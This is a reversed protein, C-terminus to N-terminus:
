DLSAHATQGGISSKLAGRLKVARREVEDLIRVLEDAEKCPTQTSSYAEQEQVGARGANQLLLRIAENVDAETSGGAVGMRRLRRLEASTPKYAVYTYINSAVLALIVLGLLVIKSGEDGLNLLDSISEVATQLGSFIAKFGTIVSDLAGQLASYDQNQRARRTQAAYKEADSLKEDAAAAEDAAAQEADDEAGAVFFETSHAKMHARMGKELDDHYQKQGEIASKEIIGTPM